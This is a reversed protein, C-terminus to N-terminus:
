AIRFVARALVAFCTRDAIAAGAARGDRTGARFAGAVRRDQVVFGPLLDADVHVREDSVARDVCREREESTSKIIGEERTRDSRDVKVVPVLVIVDGVVAHEHRGARVVADRCKRSVARVRVDHDCRCGGDFLRAAGRNRRHLRPIRPCHRRLHFEHALAAREGHRHVNVRRAEGEQLSEIRRRPPLGDFLEAADDFVRAQGKDRLPDHRRAAHLAM